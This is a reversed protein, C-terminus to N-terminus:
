RFRSPQTQPLTNRPASHTDVGGGPVRLTRAPSNETAGLVHGGCDGGATAATKFFNSMPGQSFQSVLSKYGVM